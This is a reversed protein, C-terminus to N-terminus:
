MFLHIVSDLNHTDNETGSLYPFISCEFRVNTIGFRVNTIGFRDITRKQCFNSAFYGKFPQKKKTSKKKKFFAVTSTQM